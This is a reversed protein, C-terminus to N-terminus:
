SHIPPIPTDHHSSNQPTGFNSNEKSDKSIEKSNEDTNSNDNGEDEEINDCHIKPKALYLNRKNEIRPNAGIKERIDDIFECSDFDNYNKHSDPPTIDNKMM